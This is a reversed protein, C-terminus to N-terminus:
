RGKSFLEHVERLLRSSDYPKYHLFDYDSGRSLGLGLMEVGSEALIVGGHRAANKVYRITGAIKHVDTRITLPGLSLPDIIVVKYQGHDLGDRKSDLDNTADVLNPFDEELRSLEYPMRSIDDLVLIREYDREPELAPGM